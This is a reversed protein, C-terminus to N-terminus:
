SLEDWPALEIPASERWTTRHMLRRAHETDYPTGAHLVRRNDWLVADGVQWQHRYQFAPQCAQRTLGAIFSRSTAESEGVLCVTVQNGFYLARRGTLPHRRVLPRVMSDQARRGASGESEGLGQETLYRELGWSSNIAEIDCYRRKEADDLSDFASYMCAFLTDGGETPVELAYLLSARAAVQRHIHDTHWELEQDADRPSFSVLGKGVNGVVFIEEAGELRADELETLELEAFAASFVVQQQPTIVQDSFVLVGYKELAHEILEVTDVNPVDALSIGSVRAGIVAKMPEFEIV